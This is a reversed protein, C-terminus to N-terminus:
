RQQYTYERFNKSPQSNSIIETAYRRMDSEFDELFEADMTPYREVYERCQRLSSVLYNQYTEFHKSFRAM